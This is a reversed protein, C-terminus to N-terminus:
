GRSSPKVCRRSSRSRCMPIAKDMHHAFPSSKLLQHDQQHQLLFLPRTSPYTIKSYDTCSQTQVQMSIATRVFARHPRRICVSGWVVVMASSVTGSGDRMSGRDSIIGGSRLWLVSDLGNFGGNNRRGAVVEVLGRPEGMSVVTRIIGTNSSNLSGSPSSPHCCGM